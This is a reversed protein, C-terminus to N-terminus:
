RKKAVAKKKASPKPSAINTRVSGSKAKIRAAAAASKKARSPGASKATTSPASKKTVTKSGKAAASTRPVPKARGSTKLATAKSAAAGTASASTAKAPVIVHRRADTRTTASTARRVTSRRRPAPGYREISPDPVDRAFAIAAQTPIRVSQGSALRGKSLMRLKPNYWSLQRTSLGNQRALSVLTSKTNTVAVSRFGVRAAEPMGHLVIATQDATGAPVRIFIGGDPPAMGRLVFPNLDRLTAASAGNARAVAAVTTGGSVFVSDYSFAPQTDVSMDYRKAQKGILAAAILKPVYDKTEPRLYNREALAFFRDEGASGELENAFQTLGRAVRGPGGNYAAAALYLSGFQQQLEGLFRIAGDTSKAPDRREDVWWDVRLGIDRATRSMFQWMGVAASKSYADQDYGSEIMALYTLDEPLGSARLKAHIMPQYRSGRALRSQFHERAQTTFYQVYFMVRERTEYSRVDIDWVPESSELLASSPHLASTDGFVAAVVKAVEEPQVTPPVMTASPAVRGAADPQLSRGSMDASRPQPALSGSTGGGARQCSALLFAPLLCLLAVVRTLRPMMHPRPPRRRRNVAVFYPARSWDSM